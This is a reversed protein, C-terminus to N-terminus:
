MLGVVHSMNVKLLPHGLYSAKCGDFRCPSWTGGVKIATELSDFFEDEHKYPCEIRVLNGDRMVLDAFVNTM